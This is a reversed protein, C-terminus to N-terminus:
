GRNRVSSACADCPEELFGEQGFSTRPWTSDPDVWVVQEGCLAVLPGDPVVAHVPGGTLIGGRRSQADVYQRYAAYDEPTLAPPAEYAADYRSDALSPDVEMWAVLLLEPTEAVQELIEDDTLETSETSPGYVEGGYGGVYRTCESRRFLKM